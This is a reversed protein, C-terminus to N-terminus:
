GPFHRRWENRFKEEHKRVLREIESLEHTKLEHYDALAIIPELWFKAKGNQGEIHVHMRPEESSNFYFRYAKERHITPSM